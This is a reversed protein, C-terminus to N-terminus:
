PDKYGVFEKPVVLSLGASYWALFAGPPYVLTELSACSLIHVALLVFTLKLLVM